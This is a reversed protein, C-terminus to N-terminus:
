FYSVPPSDPPPMHKPEPLKYYMVPRLPFDVDPGIEEWIDEEEEQNNRPVEKAPPDEQATLHEPTMPEPELVLDQQTTPNLIEVPDDVM